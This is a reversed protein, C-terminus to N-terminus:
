QLNFEDGPMVTAKFCCNLVCRVLDGFWCLPHELPPAPAAPRQLRSAAATLYPHGQTHVPQQLASCFRQLCQELM